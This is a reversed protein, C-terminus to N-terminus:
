QWNKNYMQTLFTFSHQTSHTQPTLVARVPVPVRRRELGSSHLFGLSTVSHLSQAVVGQPWCLPPIHYNQHKLPQLAAGHEKNMEM